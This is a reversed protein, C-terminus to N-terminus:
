SRGRSVTDTENRVKEIRINDYCIHFQQLYFERIEIYQLFVM